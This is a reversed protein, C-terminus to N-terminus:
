PQVESGIEPLKTFKGWQSLFGIMKIEKKEFSPVKRLDVLNSHPSTRRQNLGIWELLKLFWDTEPVPTTILLIGGPKLLEYCEAFCDVHEVVEFAIVVDFSAAQLGLRKWDKIDGVIDAPPLLDLGMYDNVGVSRLHTEVWQSGSGIELVRANSPLDSLFYKIKKRRAYDSLLPM